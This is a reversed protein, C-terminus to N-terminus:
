KLIVVVLTVFMMMVTSMTNDGALGHVENYSKDGGDLDNDVTMTMMMM